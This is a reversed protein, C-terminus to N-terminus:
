NIFYSLEAKNGVNSESKIPTQESGFDSFTAWMQYVVSLPTNSGFDLLFNGVNSVGSITTHKFWFRFFNGM